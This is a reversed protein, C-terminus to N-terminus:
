PPRKSRPWYRSEERRERGDGVLISTQCSEGGNLLLFPAGARGDVPEIAVGVLLAPGELPKGQDEAM